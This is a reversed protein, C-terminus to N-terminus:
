VPLLARLQVHRCRRWEVRALSRLEQAARTPRASRLSLGAASEKGTAPWKASEM